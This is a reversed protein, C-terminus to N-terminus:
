GKFIDKQMSLISSNKTANLAEKFDYPQSKRMNEEDM